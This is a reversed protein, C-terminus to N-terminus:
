PPFWYKDVWIYKSPENLGWCPFVQQRCFKLTSFSVDPNRTDQSCRNIFCGLISLVPAPPAVRVEGACCCHISFFCLNILQTPHFVGGRIYVHNHSYSCKRRAHQFGQGKRQAQDRSRECRSPMTGMLWPSLMEEGLSYPCTIGGVSGRRHSICPCSCYRASPVANCAELIYGQSHWAYGLWSEPLESLLVLAARASHHRGHLVLGM